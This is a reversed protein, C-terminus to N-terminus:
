THARLDAKGGAEAGITSGRVKLAMVIEELSANGAREGIGNVTCEIQRAGAQVAALSNAVAVGLDNHCHVSIIAGPIDRVLRGILEAYEHPLSYGVTDPVNLTTAGAEYTAQLVE